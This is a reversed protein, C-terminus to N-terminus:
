LEKDSICRAVWACIMPTTLFLDIIKYPVGEKKEDSKLNSMTHDVKIM